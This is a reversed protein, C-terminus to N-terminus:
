RRLILLSWDPGYEHPDPQIEVVTYTIAGRVLTTGHATSGISATPIAFAPQTGEFQGLPSIYASEFIGLTAVGGLLLEEGFGTPDTFVAFDEVLAM